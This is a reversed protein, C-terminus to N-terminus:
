LLKSKKLKTKSLGYALLRDPAVGSKAFKKHNLGRKHKKKRKAANSLVPAPTPEVEEEKEEEDDTAMLLEEATMGNDEPEIEKYHFKIPLDDIIDEYDADKLMSKKKKKKAVKQLRKEKKRQKEVLDRITKTSNRPVRAIDAHPDVEYIKKKDSAEEVEADSLEDINESFFPNPEKVEKADNPLYRKNVIYDRLFKDEDTLKDPNTWLEKLHKVGTDEIEDLLASVKKGPRTPPEGEKAGKVVLLSDESDSDINESRNKISNKIEELEKEYYSKSVMDSLENQPEEEPIEIEGRALALQHDILTMKPAKSKSANEISKSKSEDKSSSPKNESFFRVNSDYIKEDRKKLAAYCKLFEADFVDEEAVKADVDTSSESDDDDEDFDEDSSFEEEPVEEGTM